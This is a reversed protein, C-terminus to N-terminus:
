LNREREREGGRGGPALIIWRASAIVPSAALFPKLYSSRVGNMMRMRTIGAFRSRFISSFALEDRLALRTPRPLRIRPDRFYSSAIIGFHRWANMFNYRQVPIAARMPFWDRKRWTGHTWWISVDVIAIASNSLASLLMLLRFSSRKRATDIMVRSHDCDSRNISRSL